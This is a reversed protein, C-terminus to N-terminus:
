SSRRAHKVKQYLRVCEVAAKVDHARLIKAGQELAVMHLATSGNMTQAAPQDIVKQIMGKRSIGCLIPRDLIKFIHMNALLEYNHSISKGFGFGPDIVIDLIGTQMLAAVKMSLFDLVEVLVDQYTPNDQMTAPTGQMHMLVYPVNFKAVTPLLQDDMAGASIDNIMHAGELLCAEAVQHHVTDISIITDSHVKRLHKVLPLVRKLEEKHDIVSSGPRTSMGGIDIITAGERIIAEIRREIAERAGYAGGDFFSDPTVNLIGMVIPESIDLVQGRCNLTTQDWFMRYFFSFLVSQIFEDM